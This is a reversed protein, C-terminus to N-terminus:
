DVYHGLKNCNYYTVESADRKKKKKKRKKDGVKAANVGTASTTSDRPQSSDKRDRYQKKKKNKRAKDSSKSKPTSTPAKSAKSDEERQLAGQTQVKHATTHAPQSRQFVQIDTERMYFSPQLGTKAKVSVVKAVLEEYDDLYTADKNIQAKISPKLDEEFYRVMSSETFVAVLDFQM